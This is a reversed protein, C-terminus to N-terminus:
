YLSPTSYFSLIEQGRRVLKEPGEMMLLFRGQRLHHHYIGATSGEGLVGLIVGIAAGCVASLFGAIPLLLGLFSHLEKFLAMAGACLMLGVAAAVAAYVLAKRLVVQTSNMLGVRDPSSYGQGVIALHEPSIGHYHLLRYAQFVTGEDPFVAIALHNSRRGLPTKRFLRSILVPNHTLFFPKLNCELRVRNTEPDTSLTM